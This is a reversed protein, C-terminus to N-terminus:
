LGQTLELLTSDSHKIHMIFGEAWVARGNRRKFWCCSMRIIKKKYKEFANRYHLCSRWPGFGHQGPATRCRFMSSWRATQGTATSRGQLICVVCGRWARRWESPQCSSFYSSVGLWRERIAQSHGATESQQTTLRPWAAAAVCQHRPLWRAVM